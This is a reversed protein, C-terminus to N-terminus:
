WRGGNGGEDESEDKRDEVVQFLASDEPQSGDKQEEATATVEAYGIDVGKLYYEGDVKIVEVNDPANSIVKEIEKDTANTPNFTLLDEIAILKDEIGDSKEIKYVPKTFSIDDLKVYPDVVNVPVRQVLNSGDTTRVILETTGVQNGIITNQGSILNSISTNAISIDLKKNSADSPEMKITFSKTGGVNLELPSPEIEISTIPRKITITKVVEMNNAFGGSAKISITNEGITNISIREEPKFIKWGTSTSERDVKYSYVVDKGAVKETLIADIYEISTSGSQYKTSTTQGILEFDPLFHLYAKSDDSYTMEITQYDSDAEFVMEKVPKNPLSYENPFETNALKKNTDQERKEIIGAADGLYKNVTSEKLQVKMNMSQTSAPITTVNNNTFRSDKYHLEARPMTLTNVAYNVKYQITKNIVSPTFSGKAYSVETPITIIAYKKGDKTGEKVNNSPVVSVSDPLPQEIVLQNLKGSVSNNVLGTPNLIYEVNFYNTKAESNSTKILDNLENVEKKLTMTSTFSAPADDKVQITASTTKTQLKGDLDTYQMTINDFVYTGTESFTVPLSVDITGSPDQNIPFLVDKKIIIDGASDTTANANDALKVKGSYKSANIKITTSITPTSVKQSIDEFIKSITNTSAQQATVGTTESLKSLYNMDVEKDTGFGISYLKINNSALNIVESNISANITKQISTLNRSIVIGNSRTATATNNTYITYTVQDEIKRKSKGSEEFTEKQILSTPEGDTLFIIYKGRDSNSSTLLENAKQMSQTYNTGGYATLSYAKNKIENLNSNVNYFLNYGKMPFSVIKDTEVDSSFPVFAFRDQYNPNTGFINVAEAIADKASKFKGPSKGLEDMSGSKDFVFVVDIPSRNANTAKGEPTLRVDLNGLAAGTSPKVIVSQSPTVSFSVSPSSSTANSQTPLLLFLFLLLVILLIRALKRRRM